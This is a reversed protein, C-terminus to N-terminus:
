FLTMQEIRESAPFETLRDPPEMRYLNPKCYIKCGAGRAQHILSDIWEGPPYMGPLKRTSSRGGIIVWHFINLNKFLLPELLPECSLFKVSSDVNRFANEVREVRAQVDVTTGTWVNDPFSIGQMNEPYKTLLLYTWRPSYRIVKLISDIWRREVWPGFLDGMSCTFVNRSGPEDTRPIPTNQPASLRDPRYHPEFGYPYYKQMDASEAKERAYCYECNNQCGTYPNWTYSCWEISNNTQRNM